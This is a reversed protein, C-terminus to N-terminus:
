QKLGINKWFRAEANRAREFGIEQLRLSLFRESVTHENNDTCWQQYAKYLERVKITIGSKQICCDKVFNGIVDMESRYEDTASLVVPPAKLGEKKWRSVGELLWNLIGSAELRLKEELRKDQKEEPIRTTFPILKIRRWIGHDAGRISPKHNTAMFVKFTPQFNFYEGYLFRATIRDNGTIQKILPEAIKKGQETETTTLLRTGKLRALDNGIAEGKRSMFTETPTAIAYDGLLYMLTNLFTSKGNAGSGFLIFMTQESVDGTIAWGCVTQIYQILENNYNMIERLFKKWEPCDAKPDYDVDAMKTIFNNKEHANFTGKQLDLTGNKVCLLWPNADVGNADINLEKIWSAAKIIAERRRVSECLIAYKEIEIRDRYDNTNKLENYIGRIMQLGKEHILAGDDVIWRCGNFVLWKKWASNYRIEHGYERRLKEANTTDTYQVKGAILEEIRLYISEDGVKEKVTFENNGM